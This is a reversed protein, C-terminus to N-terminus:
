LRKSSSLHVNLLVPAAQSAPITVPFTSTAMGSSSFKLTYNGATLLRFYDGTVHDTTIAPAGALEAVEVTATLPNGSADTVTGRVGCWTAVGVYKALSKSNATYYSPLTSAAPWKTNGMEVTIEAVGAHM